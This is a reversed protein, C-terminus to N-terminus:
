YRLSIDTGKTCGTYVFTCFCRCLSRAHTLDSRGPGQTSSARLGRSLCGRGTRSRLVKGSIEARGGLERYHRHPPGATHGPALVPPLQRCEGEVVGVSRLYAACAACIDWVRRPEPPRRASAMQRSTPGRIVCAGPANGKRAPARMYPPRREALRWLTIGM